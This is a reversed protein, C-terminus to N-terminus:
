TFTVSPAMAAAQDVTTIGLRGLENNSVASIAIPITQVDGEGVRAATVITQELVAVQVPRPSDDPFVV